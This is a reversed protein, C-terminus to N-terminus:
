QGASSLRLGLAHLINEGKSNSTFLVPPSFQVTFNKIAIVDLNGKKLFLFFPGKESKKFSKKGRGDEIGPNQSM